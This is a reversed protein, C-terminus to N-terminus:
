LEDYFVKNCYKSHNPAVAFATGTGIIIGVRNEPLEFTLADPSGIWIRSLEKQVQETVHLNTAPQSRIAGLAEIDRYLATKKRAEKPKDANPRCGAKKRMYHLISTIASYSEGTQAIMDDYFGEPTDGLECGRKALESRLTQRLSDWKKSM